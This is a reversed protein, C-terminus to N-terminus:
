NGRKSSVYIDDKLCSEAAASVSIYKSKPIIGSFLICIGDKREPIIAFICINGSNVATIGGQKIHNYLWINSNNSIKKTGIPAFIGINNVNYEYYRIKM